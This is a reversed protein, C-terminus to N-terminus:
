RPFDGPGLFPPKVESITAIKWSQAERRVIYCARIEELISNDSKRRIVDALIMGLNEDMAWSKIRVIESRAWGRTRLAAMLRRFGAAHAADNAIVNVGRAGSISVYPDSFYPLFQEVEARNFLDIYDRYFRELEQEIEGAAAM